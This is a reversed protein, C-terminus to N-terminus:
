GQRRKVKMLPFPGVSGRIYWTPNQKKDTLGPVLKQLWGLLEILDIENDQPGSDAKGEGRCGELLAFTFAGHQKEPLEYSYESGQSSAFVIVGTNELKWALRQNNAQQEGLISGSHCADLFLLIRKVRAGRLISHFTTWKLATSNLENLNVEYTAFFYSESKQSLQLIGHGSLFLVLTDREKKAPKILERLTNGVNVATAQANTLRQPIVRRYLTGESSKWLNSFAEADRDAYKLNFRSNQYQSVGVSLVYLNGIDPPADPPVIRIETSGQLDDDDLAVARLTVSKEGRLIPVNTKRFRTYDKHSGPIDKFEIPIPKGGKPPVTPIAKFEIPIPKDDILPRGNMFLEVETVKSDDTATIEVVGITNSTVSQEDRPRVFRVRPPILRGAIFRSVDREAKPVVEGQLARRVRMPRHFLNKYDEVPFLDNGVRWKIVREAKPSGDYYGEPTVVLYDTSEKEGEPLPLTILTALHRGSPIDWLRVTTDNSGSALIKGNPSFALSIVYDNHGRLTYKAEGTQTDWLKVIGDFSGSALTKGNPSFAVSLVLSEHKIQAPIEKGTEVEWLKVTGDASGSALTKGDPSFGVSRV